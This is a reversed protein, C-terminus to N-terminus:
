VAPQWGDDLLPPADAPVVTLQFWYSERCVGCAECSAMHLYAKAVNRVTVNHEAAYYHAIIEEVSPARIYRRGSAEEWAMWPTKECRRPQYTLFLSPNGASANGSGAAPTTITGAGTVIPSGAPIAPTMTGNVQGGPPQQVCGAFVVLIVTLLVLIAAVGDKGNKLMGCAM